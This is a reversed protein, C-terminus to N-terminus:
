YVSILTICKFFASEIIVIIDTYYIYFTGMNMAM